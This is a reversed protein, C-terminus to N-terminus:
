AAHDNDYTTTGERRAMDAYNMMKRYSSRFDRLPAVLQGARFEMGTTWAKDGANDFEWVSKGTELLRAGLCPIGYCDLAAAQWIDRTTYTAHSAAPAAPAVFTQPKKRLAYAPEDTITTVTANYEPYEKTTKTTTEVAKTPWHSNDM